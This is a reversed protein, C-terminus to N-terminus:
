NQILYSGYLFFKMRCQQMYEKHTICGKAEMPVCKQIEFQLYNHYYMHTHPCLGFQKNLIEHFTLEQITLPIVINKSTWSLWAFSASRQFFMFHILSVTCPLTLTFSMYIPASCPIRCPLIRISTYMSSLFVLFLPLGTWWQIELSTYLGWIDRIYVKRRAM